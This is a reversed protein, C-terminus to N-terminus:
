IRQNKGTIKPRPRVVTVRIEDFVRDATSIGRLPEVSVGGEKNLLCMGVIGPVAMTDLQARIETRYLLDPQGSRYEDVKHNVPDYEPYSENFDGALNMEIWCIWRSGPDVRVRTRFYGPLPTAGTIILEDGTAEAAESNGPLDTRNIESWLPLAEPVEKKGEWDGLAVRRTVYVTHISGSGPKELWIAFTPSEGYLSQRVLEENIHILFELETKNWTRAYALVVLASVATGGCILGWKILGKIM